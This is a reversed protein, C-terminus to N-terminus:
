ATKREVRGERLRDHKVRFRELCRPCIGDSFRVALGRWSVVGRWWPRGYYQPHWACRLIIM